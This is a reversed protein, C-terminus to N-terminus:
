KDKQCKNITCVIPAKTKNLEELTYIEVTKQLLLSKSIHLAKIRNKLLTHQSTSEPFKPCIKEYNHIYSMVNKLVKALKIDTYSNIM